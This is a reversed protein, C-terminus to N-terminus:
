CGTSWDDQESRTCACIPPGWGSGSGLASFPLGNTSQRREQTSGRRESGRGGGRQCTQQSSDFLQPVVHLRRTLFSREGFINCAGRGPDMLIHLKRQAASLFSPCVKPSWLSVTGQRGQSVARCATLISFHIMTITDRWSPACKEKAWPARERQLPPQHTSFSSVAPPLANEGDGDPVHAARVWKTVWIACACTDNCLPLAYALPTAETTPSSPRPSERADRAIGAPGHGRLVGGPALWGGGGGRWGAWSWGSSEEGGLIDAVCGARPPPQLCCFHAVLM